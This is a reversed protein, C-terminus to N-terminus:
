KLYKPDWHNLPVIYNAAHIWITHIYISYVTYICVHIYMLECSNYWGSLCFANIYLFVNIQFLKLIVTEKGYFYQFWLHFLVNRIICANYITTCWSSWLAKAKQFRMFALIESWTHIWVLTLWFLFFCIWYGHKWLSTCYLKPWHPITQYLSGMHISHISNATNIYSNFEFCFM